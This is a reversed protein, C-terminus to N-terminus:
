AASSIKAPRAAALPNPPSETCITLVVSDSALGLEARISPVTAAKILGALGAAGSPTTRLGDSHVATNYEIAAVDADVDEITMFYDAAKELIAWAMRSPRGCSLMAMNTALDGSASQIHGAVATQFLCDASAPEVIIIRPRSRGLREWLGGAFAAALGGVGGQIFLHSVSDPGFSLHSQALQAICEELLVGYGAMVDRTASDFADETTDAVLNWGNVRAAAVAAEVAADYSGPIGVIEAGLATMTQVYSRDVNKPIYIVARCGVHTAGAAVSIGHNGDTAAVFVTSKLDHGLSPLDRARRIVAYQGGLAKFSTLGLRATEDKALLAGLKLRAALNDLQRLPTVSFGPLQRLVEAAAMTMDRSVVRRAAESYPASASASKNKIFDM